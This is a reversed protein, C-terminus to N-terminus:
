NDAAFIFLFIWKLLYDPSKRIKGRVARMLKKHDISSYFGSIDIKVFADFPGELVQQRVADILQQPQPTVCAAGFVDDLINSLASLTLKDRVTPMCIERPKSDKGKSLLKQRYCTFQYTRNRTKRIIVEINDDLSAEFKSGSIKDLGPTPDIGVKTIYLEKLSASTFRLAFAEAARM